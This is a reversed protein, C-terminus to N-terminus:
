RTSTVPIAVRTGTWSVNMTAASPSTKDLTITLMEVSDALSEAPVKGSGVDKARVDDSIPIGWRRPVANVHIEWQDTQPVAYLSYWGSDVSVGAIQGAFPLHITTAENAGMRWPEGYPVLGGMIQRGRASPRGYCVTITGAALAVSASDLPSPRDALKSRDGQVYCGGGAAATPQQDSTAPKRSDSCGTAAVALALAAAALFGSYRESM